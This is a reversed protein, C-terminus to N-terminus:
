LVEGGAPRREWWGARGICDAITRTSADEPPLESLRLRLLTETQRPEVSDSEDDERGGDADCWLRGLPGERELRDVSTTWFRCRRRRVGAAEVVLEQVAEERRPQHLVFLVHQRDAGQMGTYFGVYSRVKQSLRALSETGRDWELDFRIIQRRYLYVGAGDPTAVPRRDEKV